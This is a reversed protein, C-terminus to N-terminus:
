KGEGQALLDLQREDVPKLIYVIGSYECDPLGAKVAVRAVEHCVTSRAEEWICGKCSKGPSAIFQTTAPNM